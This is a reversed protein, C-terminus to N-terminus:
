VTIRNKAASDASQRAKVVMACDHCYKQKRGTGANDLKTVLGCEACVFYPEGIYMLYQNGLNRFDTINLVPESEYDCFNVKVNTCDVRKSFSILGANCLDRYLKSQRTSSTKINAIAMIESDKNNVWSSDSNYRANWYKALCLLTFALREEQRGICMEAIANIEPETIGISDIIVLEHKLAYQVAYDIVKGLKIISTHPDCVLVFKELMCRVEDKSHGEDVYMRAILKLTDFRNKGLCRNAIANEAFDRENLIVM